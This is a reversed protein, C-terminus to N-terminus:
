FDRLSHTLFIKGPNEIYGLKSISFQFMLSMKGFKKIKMEM